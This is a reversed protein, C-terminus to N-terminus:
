ELNYGYHFPAWEPPTVSLGVFTQNSGTDFVIEGCYFPVSPMSVTRNPSTYPVDIPDSPRGLNRVTAM